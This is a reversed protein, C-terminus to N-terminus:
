NITAVPVVGGCQSRELVMSQLSFSERLKSMSRDMVRALAIYLSQAIHRATSAM